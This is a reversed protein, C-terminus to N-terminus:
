REYRGVGKLADVDERISETVGSSKSATGAKIRNVGIAILIGAILLLALAVILAALWLPVVLALAIVALAVLVLTAFFILSVAAAILGIGIGVNKAKQALEAKLAYIEAQILARIQGPLEALLAFVSRKGKPTFESNTV